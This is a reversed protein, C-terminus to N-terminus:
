LFPESHFFPESFIAHSARDTQNMMWCADQVLVTALHHFVKIVNKRERQVEILSSYFAEKAEEIIPFIMSLLEEHPISRARPLWMFGKEAKHGAAARLAPFAMNSSYHRDFIGREWLGLDKIFSSLVEEFELLVPGVARGFHRIHSVNYGLGQFISRLKNYYTSAGM